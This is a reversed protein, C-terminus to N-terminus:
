YMDAIHWASRKELVFTLSFHSKLPGFVLCLFAPKHLSAMSSSLKLHQTCTHLLAKSLNARGDLLLHHPDEIAEVLSVSADCLTVWVCFDTDLGHFLESPWFVRVGQLKGLTIFIVFTGSAFSLM